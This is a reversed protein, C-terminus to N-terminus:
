KADLYKLLEMDKENDNSIAKLYRVIIGEKARVEHNLINLEDNLRNVEEELIKIDEDKDIKKDIKEEDIEEEIHLTVGFIEALTALGEKNIYMLHNNTQVNDKFLENSIMIKEIIKIKEINLLEAAESLKFM